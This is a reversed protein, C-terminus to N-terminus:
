EEQKKKKRPRKEIQFYPFKHHTKKTMCINVPILCPFWTSLRKEHGFGRATYINNLDHPLDNKYEENFKTILGSLKLIEPLDEVDCNAMAAYHEPEVPRLKWVVPPKGSTPDSVWYTRHGISPSGVCDRGDRIETKQRAEHTRYPPYDDTVIKVNGQEDLIPTGDVIPTMFAMMDGAGAADIMKGCNEEVKKLLWDRADWRAEMFEAIKLALIKVYASKAKKESYDLYAKSDGMKDPLIPTGALDKSTIKFHKFLAPMFESGAFMDEPERIKYIWSCIAPVGSHVPVIAHSPTDDVPQDPLDAATEEPLLIDNSIIDRDRFFHRVTEDMFAPFWAMSLDDMLENLMYGDKRIALMTTGEPAYGLNHKYFIQYPAYSARKGYYYESGEQGVRSYVDGKFPMHVLWINKGDKVCLYIKRTYEAPQALYQEETLNDNRMVNRQREDPFGYYWEFFYDKVQANTKELAAFMVLADPDASEVADIIDKESKFMCIARAFVPSKLGSDPGSRVRLASIPNGKNDQYFSLADLLPDMIRTLDSFDADEPKFGIRTLISVYLESKEAWIQKYPNNALIAELERAENLPTMGDTSLLDELRLLILPKAWTWCQEIASMALFGTKNGHKTIQDLLQQCKWHITQVSERNGNIEIELVDRSCRFSRDLLTHLLNAAKSLEEGPEYDEPFGRYELGNDKDKLANVHM